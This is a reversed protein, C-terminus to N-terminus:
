SGERSSPGTRGGNGSPAGDVDVPSGPAPGGLRKFIVVGAQDLEWRRDLSGVLYPLDASRQSLEGGFVGLQHAELVQFPEGLAFHRM